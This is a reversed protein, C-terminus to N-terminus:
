RWPGTRGRLGDCLGRAMMAFRNRRQGVFVLFFGAFQVLRSLFFLKWRMPVYTQRALLVSNRFMYYDRLASHHAVQRWRLFWIRSVKDGLRHRLVASPVGLLTWGQARTRLCWESDVHDIFWDARMPTADMLAACRMLTGSAILFGVPLPPHSAADAPAWQLPWLGNDLVFFSRKGTRQDISSPGAAAANPAAELARALTPVMDTTAESDQDMLLIHAADKNRAAAIGVNQAHAIGSNYGLTQLEAKFERCLNRLLELTPESSGNDIVWMGDVQGRLSEFQQRLASIDPRYTITISAIM